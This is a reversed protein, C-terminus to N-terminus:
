VTKEAASVSGVETKVEPPTPEIDARRREVLETAMRRIAAPSPYNRLAAIHKLDEIEIPGCDYTQRYSLIEKAMQVADRWLAAEEFDGDGIAKYKLHAGDRIIQILRENGVQQKEDM